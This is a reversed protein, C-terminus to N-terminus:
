NWAEVAFLGQKKRQQLLAKATKVHTTTPTMPNAMARALIQTLEDVVARAMKAGGAVYIAGHNRLVHDSVQAECTRLRHQVYTKPLAVTPGGEVDEAMRSFATWLQLTDTFEQNWENQYLFDRQAHRCGFCLISDCDAKANRDEQRHDGRVPHDPDAGSEVMAIANANDIANDIANQRHFERERIMSRLPAIGTGAGVYLVPTLFQRSDDDSSVDRTATTLPLGGFSGPRIWLHLTAHIPLNALYHSCLGQFTRGLPTTQTLVAVCLELTHPSESPASAISFHRPQMRPILRLLHGLTITSPGFDHFLETWGRRERVIYDVYLDSGSPESLERLKQCRETDHSCFEALIRLDDRDPASSLSAM